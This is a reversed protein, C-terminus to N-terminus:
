RLKECVKWPAGGLKCNMQIAIKTAISMLSRMNGGKPTITRQVIVQTPIPRDICCKKKITGYRDANNNPSICVIMQPNQAACVELAEVYTHQRDDAIIKRYIFIIQEFHQFPM